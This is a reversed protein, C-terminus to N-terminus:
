GVSWLYVMMLAFVTDHAKGRSVISFLICCPKLTNSHLINLRFRSMLFCWVFGLQIFNQLLVPNDEEVTLTLFCWPSASYETTLDKVTGKVQIREEGQIPSSCFLELAPTPLRNRHFALYFIKPKISWITETAVVKSQPQICFCGHVVHLCIPITKTWYFKVLLFLHCTPQLKYIGGRFLM